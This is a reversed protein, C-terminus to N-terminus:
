NKHVGENEDLEKCVKSCYFHKHCEICPGYVNNEGEVKKCRSCKFLQKYGDNLVDYFNSAFMEYFDIQKQFFSKVKDRKFYIGNKKGVLILIEISLNSLKERIEFSLKTEEEYKSNVALTIEVVEIQNLEFSNEGFLKFINLIQIMIFPQNLFNQKYMDYLISTIKKEKFLFDLISKENKILSYLLFLSKESFEHSTEKYMELGQLITVCCKKLTEQDIEEKKEINETDEENLYTMYTEKETTTSGNM